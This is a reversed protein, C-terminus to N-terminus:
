RKQARPEISVPLAIVLYKVGDYNGCTGAMVAEQGDRPFRDAAGSVVRAVIRMMAPYPANDLKEASILLM